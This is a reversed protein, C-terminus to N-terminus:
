GEQQISKKWRGSLYYILMSSSTTVWTIPFLIAVGDVTNTFHLLIRLVLLRVFCMNFITIIMPPMAKGSGRIVGSLIEVIAYLFYFRFTTKAIKVSLEIVEREDSFLRFIEHSFLLIVTSILVTIGIASLMALKTSKEVRKMKKAGINQGVITMNAQGVAWQPLFLFGEMKCYAAYAAMSEVGFINIQSQLIINAFTIVMSQLAAPIGICFIKKAFFPMIKISRVELSYAKPLRHVTRITLFAAFSQSLLTALAAGAIGLHFVCMFIANGIVNVFGGIFQYIMPSRSNGLARLIGASINYSVISLISLFYIRIYTLALNMIDEPVNMWNLFLPAFVIGLLMVVVSLLVTLGAATHITQKVNKDEKAGFFQATIVGVGAGMGNFFGIICNILLSTSGVAASAEKGVINGVFVLDVTNYLQQILSTGLLPLAFLFLGTLISGETFDNTKNGM